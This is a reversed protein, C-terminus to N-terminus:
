LTLLVNACGLVDAAFLQTGHECDTNLLVAQFQFYVGSRCERTGTRRSGGVFCNTRYIVTTM